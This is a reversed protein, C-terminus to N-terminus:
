HLETSLFHSGQPHNSLLDYTDGVLVMWIEHPWTDGLIDADIVRFKDLCGDYNQYPTMTRGTESAHRGGAFFVNASLPTMRPAHMQDLSNWKVSGVRFLCYGINKPDTIEYVLYPESRGLEPDFEKMSITDNAAEYGIYPIFTFGVALCTQIFPFITERQHNSTLDDRSGILTASEFEYQIQM